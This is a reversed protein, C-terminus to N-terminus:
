ELLATAMCMGSNDSPMLLWTLMVGYDPMNSLSVSVLPDATADMFGFNGNNGMDSLLMEGGEYILKVTTADIVEVTANVFTPLTPQMAIPCLQEMVTWAVAYDGNELAATQIAPIDGGVDANPEDVIPAEPGTGPLYIDTTQYCSVGGPATKSWSLSGTGDTQIDLYITELDDGALGNTFTYFTRGNRAVMQQGSGYDILLTGNGQDVLSVESFQPVGGEATCAPDLPTFPVGVKYPGAQIPPEEIPREEEDTDQFPPKQPEEGEIVAVPTQDDGKTPDYAGLDPCVSEDPTVLVIEYEAFYSCGNDYIESYRVIVRDPAVVEYEVYRDSRSSGVTQGNADQTTTFNIEPMGSYISSTGELYMHMDYQWTIFPLGGPNEFGCMPEGPDPDDEDRDIVGGGCGDCYTDLEFCPGNAQVNYPQIKWLGNIPLLQSPVYFEIMNEVRKRNINKRKIKGDNKIYDVTGNKVANGIQERTSGPNEALLDEAISVLGWYADAQGPTNPIPQAGTTANLERQLQTLFPFDEADRFDRYLQEQYSVEATPRSAPDFVKVYYDSVTIEVNDIVTTGEISSAEFAELEQNFSNIDNWIIESVASEAPSIVGNGGPMGSMNLRGDIALALANVDQNDSMASAPQTESQVGLAGAIVTLMVFLYLLRQRKM